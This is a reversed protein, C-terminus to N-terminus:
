FKGSRKLNPRMPRAALNIWGISVRMGL